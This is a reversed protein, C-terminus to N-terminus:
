PLNLDNEISQKPKFNVMKVSNLRIIQEENESDVISRSRKSDKHTPNLYLFQHADQKYGQLDNISDHTPSQNFSPMELIEPKKICTGADRKGSLPEM